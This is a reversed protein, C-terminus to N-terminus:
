ELAVIEVRRNASRGEPTDNPARPHSAGEGQVLLREPTIAFHQVLYHQVAEARQRALTTETGPAELSDTYGVIRVRSAAYHPQTLVTGLRDLDSTYRPEIAASAPAFTLPLVVPARLGPPPSSERFRWGRDELFLAQALETITYPRGRLDTGPVLPVASLSPYSVSRQSPAEPQVQAQLATLQRVLDAHRAQWTRSEAQAERVQAQMASLDHRLTANDQADRQVQAQLAALQRTLDAQRTQWRVILWGHMALSLCLGAALVGIAPRLGYLLRFRRRAWVV